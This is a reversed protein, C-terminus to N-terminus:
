SKTQIQVGKCGQKKWYFRFKIHTPDVKTQVEVGSKGWNNNRLRSPFLDPHYPGLGGQERAQWHGTGAATGAQRGGEQGGPARPGHGRGPGPRM